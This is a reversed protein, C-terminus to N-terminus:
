KVVSFKKTESIGEGKLQVFYIGNALSVTPISVTKTASAKLLNGQLGEVKQSYVIEGFNNRVEILIPKSTPAKFSVNLVDNAPNPYVNIGNNEDVSSIKELQKVPENTMEWPVATGDYVGSLPAASFLPIPCGSIYATFNGGGTPNFNFDPQFVIGTGANYKVDVIGGTTYTRSGTINGSCTYRQFGGSGPSNAPTLSLDVPCYSYLDSTWIGRGFTAATVKNLDTNIYFDNVIVNPLGNKYAIWNGLDNNRYYIGVDTGVYIGDNPSGPEYAICNAPINPLAGTINTWSTGGNSSYFVKNAASYGSFTVWVKNADITSTALFTISASGVPLTGTINTWNTGGNITKRVVSSSAAYVTNTTNTGVAFAIQTGAGTLVTSWSTGGNITKYINSFGTYLTTPTIPDMIFPTNWNGGTAGSPTITSLNNGGDASRLLNGGTNSYYLINSNTYDILSHAGDGGWIQTHTNAAGDVIGTGNDQCGILFLNSNQPTGGFNYIQTNQLGNSLQIFDDCGNTSKYIGGDSGTYITTGNFEFAHQDCHNYGTTNPEVWYSKCTWNVGSNTSKWVEIGGAYVIAANAPDIGLSIDYDAQSSNDGGLSDYGLINPTNSQLTFNVGSDTSRYLGVLGTTGGYLLYVYASNAPTVGICIRTSGTTPLVSGVLSFGAGNNISRYLRTSNCAYVINHDGPKFEIDWFNGTQVLTNTAWSDVTRYVGNSTAAFQIAPNTPDLLLKRGRVNTSASFALSTANWSTGGNVSKLIGISGVNTYDGDGTLIYIQSTNAPNIGIGSVGIIPIGDSLPTWSNGGVTTKWLGGDPCGVYIVSANSPDFAICNVRGIGGSYGHPGPTYTSPGVATWAGNLSSSKNLSQNDRETQWAEWAKAAPNIIKGSPYVRPGMFYEWRKFQFYEGEQEEGNGQKLRDKDLEKEQKEKKAWYKYFAKQIDYFNANGDQMMKKYEQAHVEYYFAPLLLLILIIIKRKM